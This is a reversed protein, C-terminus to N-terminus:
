GATRYYATITANDEISLTRVRNTGGDEWHDFTLNHYGNTAYARYTTSNTDGSQSDIIAWMHLTKNGDLSIANVTLDPQEETGTYALPTFGRLANGADYTATITNDASFAVAHTRNTGGDDWKNFVKGDYNSVSVIIHRRRRYVDTAHLRNEARNQRNLSHRNM